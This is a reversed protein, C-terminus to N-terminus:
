SKENSKVVLKLRENEEELMEFSLEAFQLKSNLSIIDQMLKEILCDKCIREGGFWMTTRKMKKHCNSCKYSFKYCIKTENDIFKNKDMCFMKSENQVCWYCKKCKQEEIEKM